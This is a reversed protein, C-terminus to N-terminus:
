TDHLMDHVIWEQDVVPVLQSSLGVKDAQQHHCKKVTLQICGKDPLPFADTVVTVDWGM